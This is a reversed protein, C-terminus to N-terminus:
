GTVLKTLLQQDQQEFSQMTKQYAEFARTTDIMRAMEEVINFNAEELSGQEIQADESQVPEPANPEPKFYGNKIKQLQAGKEFSVVSITDIMDAGDYVQGDRTIRITDKEEGTVQIPGGQGLVPWGEQTVLTRDNNIMLDGKRTYLIGDETQVRMMGEGSIAVDLPNGTPRLRGQEMSTHTSQYLYASFHATDKKYGPTSANALNNAIVDITKVHQMSSLAVSYLGIRSM